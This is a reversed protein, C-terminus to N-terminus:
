RPWLRPLLLPVARRYRAYAEGWERALANDDGVTKAIVLAGGLVAALWTRASHAALGAGGLILLLGLAQPHRVLRFPGALVLRPLVPDPPEASRELARRWGLEHVAWLEVSAGLAVLVMAIVALIM